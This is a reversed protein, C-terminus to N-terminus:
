HALRIERERDTPELFAPLVLSGKAQFKFYKALLTGRCHECLDAEHRDTGEPISTRPDNVVSLKVSRIKRVKQPVKLSESIGCGDCKLIEV